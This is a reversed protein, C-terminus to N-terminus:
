PELAGAHRPRRLRHALAHWAFYDIQEEDVSHIQISGDTFGILLERSDPAYAVNAVQHDRGGLVRRLHGDALDYVRVESFTGGYAVTLTDGAPAFEADFAPLATDIFANGCFSFFHIDCGLQPSREYVTAYPTKDSLSFLTTGTATDIVNRQLYKYEGQPQDYGWNLESRFMLAGDASLAQFPWDNVHGYQARAEASM